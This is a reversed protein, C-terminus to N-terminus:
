RSRRSHRGQPKEPNRMLQLRGLPREELWGLELSTEGKKLEKDKNRASDKGVLTAILPRRSKAKQGVRRRLAEYSLLAQFSKTEAQLRLEKQYATFVNKIKTQSIGLVELARKKAKGADLSHKRQWRETDRACKLITATDAKKPPLLEPPAKSWDLGEAM